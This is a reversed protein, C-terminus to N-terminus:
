SSAPGKGRWGLWAVTGLMGLWGAAGVMAAIATDRHLMGLSSFIINWDHGTFDPDADGVTVLPLEMRRADAMYTASYLLNEFFFFLCFAFGTTQRRVLFTTALALPVLWQLLTGGWVGLLFNETWGFLLHGAEHVVLNVNDIFLFRNHNAAAYLLFVVYFGMWGVLAARSVPHWEAEWWSELWERM